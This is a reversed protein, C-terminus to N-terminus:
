RKRFALWWHRNGNVGRWICHLSSGNRLGYGLAPGNLTLSLELDNESLGHISGSPNEGGSQETWTGARTYTRSVKKSQDKHRRRVTHVKCSVLFHFVSITETM